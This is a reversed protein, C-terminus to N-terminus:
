CNVGILYSTDGAVGVGDVSVQKGDYCTIRLGVRDSGFGGGGGTKKFFNYDQRDTAQWTKGHDTSVELTTVPQNANLVQM